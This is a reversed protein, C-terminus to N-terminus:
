RMNFYSPTKRCGSRRCYGAHRLPTQIIRYHAFRACLEFVASTYGLQNGENPTVVV